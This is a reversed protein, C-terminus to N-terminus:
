ENMSTRRDPCKHWRRPRFGSTSDKQQMERKKERERERVGERERVREKEICKEREKEREREEATRGGGGMQHRVNATGM